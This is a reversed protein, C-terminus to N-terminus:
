SKLGEDLPKYRALVDQGEVLTYQGRFLQQIAFNLDVPTTADDIPHGFMGYSESILTKYFFVADEPGEYQIVASEDPDSTALTITVGNLPFHYKM